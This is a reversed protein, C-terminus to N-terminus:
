PLSLGENITQETSFQKPAQHVWTHALVEDISCRLGQEARIMQLCLERAEPPEILEIVEPSTDGAMVAVLLQHLSRQQFPTRHTLCWCLLVGLSYVDVKFPQEGYEIKGDVLNGRTILEPAQYAHNGGCRTGVFSNDCELAIRRLGFDTLKIQEPGHEGIQGILVNEPSVNRHVAGFTDNLYKLASAVGSVIISVQTPDAPSHPFREKLNPGDPCGLPEPGRVLETILYLFRGHHFAEPALVLNPHKCSLIMQVERHMEELPCSTDALNFRKCAFWEGTANHKVVSLLGSHSSSHRTHKFKYTRKPDELQACPTQAQPKPADEANQVPHSKPASVDPPAEVPDEAGPQAHTCGM